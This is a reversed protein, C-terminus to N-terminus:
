LDVECLDAMPVWEEVVIEFGPQQLKARVDEKDRSPHPDPVRAHIRHLGCLRCTERRTVECMIMHGYDPVPKWWHPCVRRYWPRRFENM